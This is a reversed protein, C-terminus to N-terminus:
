HIIEFDLYWCFIRSCIHPIGLYFTSRSSLHPDIWYKVFSENIQPFHRPNCPGLHNRLKQLYIPSTYFLRDIKFRHVHHYHFFVWLPFPSIIQPLLYWLLSIISVITSSQKYYQSSLHMSPANKQTPIAVSILVLSRWIIFYLFSTSPISLTYHPFYISTANSCKSFFLYNSATSLEFTFERALYNAEVHIM